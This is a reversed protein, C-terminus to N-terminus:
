NGGCVGFELACHDSLRRELCKTRWNSFALIWDKSELFRDLRSKKNNRGFWIFQKGLINVELLEAKEIFMNFRKMCSNNMLCGKREEILRAINFDGVICYPIRVAEVLSIIEKWLILQDLSKNPAYVNIILIRKQYKIHIGWFAIWRKQGLTKEM